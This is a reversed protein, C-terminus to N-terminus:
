AQEKQEAEDKNKMLKQCIKCDVMRKDTTTAANWQIHSGIDEAFDEFHVRAWYNV